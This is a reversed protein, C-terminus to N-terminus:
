GFILAYKLMQEDTPMIDNNIQGMQGRIGRNYRIKWQGNIAFTSLDIQVGVCKGAQLVGRQNVLVVFENNDVVTINGPLVDSIYLKGNILNEATFIKDPVINEGQYQSALNNLQSIQM